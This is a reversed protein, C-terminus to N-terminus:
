KVYLFNHLRAIEFVDLQAGNLVRVLLVLLWLHHYNILVILVLLISPTILVLWTFIEKMIMTVYRLTIENGIMLSRYTKSDGDSASYHVPSLSEM